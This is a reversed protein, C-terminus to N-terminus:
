NIIIKGEEQAKAFVEKKMRSILELKRINIIISRIRDWEFEIPSFSDAIKFDRIRVLFTYLSDQETVM